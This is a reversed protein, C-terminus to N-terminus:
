RILIARLLAQFATTNREVLVGDVFEMDYEYSSNLYEDVPMIAM